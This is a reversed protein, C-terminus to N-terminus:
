DGFCPRRQALKLMKESNDIGLQHAQSCNSVIEVTIKGDGRSIDLVRERDNLKLKSILERGM